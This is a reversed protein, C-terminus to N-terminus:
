EDPVKGIYEIRQIGGTAQGSKVLEKGPRYIKPVHRERAALFGGTM